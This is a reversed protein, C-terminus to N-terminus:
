TASIKVDGFTIQLCVVCPISKPYCYVLTCQTLKWPHFYFFPPNGWYLMISEYQTSVRQWVNKYDRQNVSDIFILNKQEQVEKFNFQCQLFIWVKTVKYYVLIYGVCFLLLLLMQVYGLFGVSLLVKSCPVNKDPIFGGTAVETGTALQIFGHQPISIHKWSCISIFSCMLSVDVAPSFLGM